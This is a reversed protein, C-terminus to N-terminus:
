EDNCWTLPYRGFEEVAASIGLLVKESVQWPIEGHSEALMLGGDRGAHKIVSKVNSVIEAESWNVM